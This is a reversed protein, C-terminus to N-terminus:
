KTGANPDVMRAEDQLDAGFRNLPWFLLFAKGDVKDLAIPGIARSDFSRGRNDGMVYIHGAPIEVPGSEAHSVFATNKYNEVIPEGNVYLIGKRVEVTEGAVAVVRKILERQPKGPDQLVIVEGPRPLRFYYIFKNVLLREETYLTPEMSEGEVKYVQVVFSRILFAVVLAIVVTELWERAASKGQPKEPNQGAEPAATASGEGETALSPQTESQQLEPEPNKESSHAM